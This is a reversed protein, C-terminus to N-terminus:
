SENSDESAAMAAISLPKRMFLVMVTWYANLFDDSPAEAPAPPSRCPVSASRSKAACALFFLAEIAGAAGGGGGPMPGDKKVPAFAPAIIPARPVGEELTDNM